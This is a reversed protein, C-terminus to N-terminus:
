LIRGDEIYVHYDEAAIQKLEDIFDIWETADLEQLPKLEETIEGTEYNIKEKWCITSMERLRKEVTKYTLRNGQEYMASRFSPVVVKLYYGRINSVSRRDYVSVKVIVRKGPHKRLFDNLDQPVRLIGKDDTSGIGEYFGRFM